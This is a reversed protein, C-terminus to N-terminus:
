VVEPGFPWPHGLFVGVPQWPQAGVRDRREDTWITWRTKCAMCWWIEWAYDLEAAVPRVLISGGSAQCGPCRPNGKEDRPDKV